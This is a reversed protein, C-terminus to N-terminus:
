CNESQDEDAGPNQDGMQNISKSNKGSVQNSGQDSNGKKKQQNQGQNEGGKGQRQQSRAFSRCEAKFHGFKGCYYCKTDKTAPHGMALLDAESLGPDDTVPLPTADMPQHADALFRTVAGGRGLLGLHLAAHVIAREM